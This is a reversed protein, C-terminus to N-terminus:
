ADNYSTKAQNNMVIPTDGTKLLSNSIDLEKKKQNVLQEARKFEASKDKEDLILIIDNNKVASGQNILIEKVIGDTQPIIKVINKSEIHASLEIAADKEEVLAKKLLIKITKDKTAQQENKEKKFFKIGIFIALILIIFLKLNRSM